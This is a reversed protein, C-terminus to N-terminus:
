SFTALAMIERIKNSRFLEGFCQYGMSSSACVSIVAKEYLISIAILSPFHKLKSVIVDNKEMRVSAIDFMDINKSLGTKLYKAAAELITWLVCNGRLSAEFHVCNREFFASNIIRKDKFHDIYEVDVGVIIERRHCISVGLRKSHAITVDYDKNSLLPNGQVGNCININRLTEANLFVNAAIKAALRGVIYNIRSYNKQALFNTMEERSLIQESIADLPNSEALL